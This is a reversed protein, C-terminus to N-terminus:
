AYYLSCYHSRADNKALGEILRGFFQKRPSGLDVVESGLIEVEIPKAVNFNPSKYICLADQLMCDERVVVKKVRTIMKSSRFVRLIKQVTLGESVVKNINGNILM